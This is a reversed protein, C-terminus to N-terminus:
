TTADRASLHRSMAPSMFQSPIEAALLQPKDLALFCDEYERQLDFQMPLQLLSKPSLKFAALRVPATLQRAPIKALLEHVEARQLPCEPALLMLYMDENRLEKPLKAVRTFDRWVVDRWEEKTQPTELTSLKRGQRLGELVVDLSLPTNKLLKKLPAPLRKDDDADRCQSMDIYLHKSRGQKGRQDVAHDDNVLAQAIIEGHVILEGHNYHAYVVEEVVLDGGVRIYAGGCSAQRAHLAGSVLLLPASDGDANILAGSIHLSGDICLGRISKGGATATVAPLSIIAGDDWGANWDLALDGDLHLDGAHLLMTDSEEVWSPISFATRLEGSTKLSFM